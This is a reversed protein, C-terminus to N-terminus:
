QDKKWKKRDPDIWLKSDDDQADTCLGLRAESSPISEKLWEKFRIYLDDVRGRHYKEFGLNGDSAKPRRVSYNNKNNGSSASASSVLEKPARNWDQRSKSIAHPYHVLYAGGVQSFVFGSAAVQMMWTMKNKGYGSFAQQFPPTLERCYRITVFPEYRHSKLCPIKHLLNVENSAELQHAFWHQYDTSGHGGGNTPDFIEVSRDIISKKLEALTKPMKPIHEERCDKTEDRCDSERKLQFAPIVLALKPDDYLEQRIPEPLIAEYLGDSPWFDVDIYTIHTTKVGELALNRLENVPYNNWAGHTQADLVKVSVLATNLSNGNDSEINCGMGLMQKAIEERTSNSYVAVSMSHPGYRECHHVMMWLRDDSLQTVLTTDINDISGPDQCRPADESELKFISSDSNDGNNTGIKWLLRIWLLGFLIM